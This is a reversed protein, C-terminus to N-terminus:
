RTSCRPRARRRLAVHLVTSIESALMVALGFAAREASRDANTADEVEHAHPACQGSGAHTRTYAAHQADVTRGTGQIHPPGDSHSCPTNQDTFRARPKKTQRWRHRSRCACCAAPHLPAGTESRGPRLCAKGHAVHRCRCTAAYLTIRIKYFRMKKASVETVAIAFNEDKAVTKVDQPLSCAGPPLRVPPQSAACPAPLEIGRESESYRRLMPKPRALLVPPRVAEDDALLPLRM